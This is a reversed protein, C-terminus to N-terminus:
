KVMDRPLCYCTDNQFSCPVPTTIATDYVIGKHFWAVGWQIYAKQRRLAGHVTFMHKGQEKRPDEVSIFSNIFWQSQLHLTEM